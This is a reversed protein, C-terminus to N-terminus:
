PCVGANIVFVYVLDQHYLLSFDQSSLFDDPSFLQPGLNMARHPVEGQTQGIYIHTIGESCLLDVGQSSGPSIDMLKRVLDVMRQTYGPQIPTEIVAYQPPMTNQRRALLPIWWGADSGNISVVKYIIGEVLFYSDDPLHEQIWAMALIDPRTLFTFAAPNTINCQNLAGIFAVIIIVIALFSQRMRWNGPGAIEAVMWGVLFGVPIYSAILIAFTQLMNAGPLHILGGAIVASLLGVWLCQAAAVWQKRILSWVLAALAVAFLAKPIYIFIDNWAQFDALVSQVSSGSIVWGEEANILNSGILRLGWPLFFLGALVAVALLLGVMRGWNQWTFCWKPFGWAALLTLIFSIYFFTMRYSSLLMGALVFASLLIATRRKQKACKKNTSMSLSSSLVEWALWLAVPLVAQGALQAYRGWNIYYAPMPMLLGAILLAGIGAWRNGRAIRVALPYLTVVALCNIVQGVILTSKVSSLGTIWAFMASFVSFGFQVTLTSYPAYPLWSKFLGGNDLLLQAMITHQVSDAWLPAELSRIAWFRTLFTLVIIGILIFDTNFSTLSNISPSIRVYFRPLTHFNVSKRNRWLIIGLGALPPLWAYLSGLHLGIIDTWLWLLPYLALSLGASLGLKEPWPVGGWGHWLLSFLGWGPLIFLFFGIALIGVWIIAEGWLGQIAEQRSYSLQFTTQSDDSTGNLHLAGNLYSDGAAKGVQVKGSGTLELFAYFYKQNSPAQAPFFFGYYGPTKVAEILISNKSKALDDAALPSTRLHLIIEGTGTEQPSLYFYVGALGDYKAVFTQGITQEASLTDWDVTAPQETGILTKCGSLLFSTFVLFLLHKINLQHNSFAGNKM